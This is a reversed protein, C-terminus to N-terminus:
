VKIPTTIQHVFFPRDFVQRALLLKLSLDNVPFPEIKWFIGRPNRLFGKHIQKAVM